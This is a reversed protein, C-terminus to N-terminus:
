NRQQQPLHPPPAPRAIDREFAAFLDDDAQPAPAPTPQAPQPQPQSPTSADEEEEEEEGTPPLTPGALDVDVTGRRRMTTSSDRPCSALPGKAENEEGDAGTADDDAKRKKGQAPNRSSKSAHLARQAHQPTRIHNDWLSETKIQANCFSCFLKGSETYSAGPATIRRSARESRLLSRIDAM